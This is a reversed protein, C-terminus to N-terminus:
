KKRDLKIDRKKNNKSNECKKREKTFVANKIKFYIKNNILEIAM